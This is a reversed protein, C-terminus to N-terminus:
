PSSRSSGGQPDRGPRRESPRPRDLSRATAPVGRPELGLFRPSEEAVITRHGDYWERAQAIVGHPENQHGRTRARRRAPAAGLRATRRHARPSSPNPSAAAQPGRSRSRGTRPSNSRWRSISIRSFSTFLSASRARAPTRAALGLAVVPPRNSRLRRRRSSGRGFPKRSSSRAANTLSEPVKPLMMRNRSFPVASKVGVSAFSRVDSESYRASPRRRAVSSVASDWSSSPSSSTEPPRTRSASSLEISIAFAAARDLALALRLDACPCQRDSLLGWRRGCPVPSETVGRPARSAKRRSALGRRRSWPGGPRLARRSV